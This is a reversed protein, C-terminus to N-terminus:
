IVLFIHTLSVRSSNFFFHYTVFFLCTYPIAHNLYDAFNIFASKPFCLPKAHRQDYDRKRKIQDVLINQKAEELLKMRKEAMDEFESKKIEDYAHIGTAENPFKEQINVDIPLTACRGFM